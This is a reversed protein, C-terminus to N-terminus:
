AHDSAAATAPIVVERLLATFDAYRRPSVLSFVPVPEPGRQRLDMFHVIDRCRHVPIVGAPLGTCVRGIPPVLEIDHIMARAPGFIEHREYYLGGGLRALFLRLAPPLVHGLTQELQALSAEGAPGATTHRAMDREIRELLVELEAGAAARSAPPPVGGLRAREEM